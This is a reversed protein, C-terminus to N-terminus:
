EYTIRSKWPGTEHGASAVQENVFSCVVALVCALVGCLHAQSTYLFQRWGLQGPSHALTHRQCPSHNGVKSIVSLLHTLTPTTPMNTQKHTRKHAHSHPHPHKMQHTNFRLHRVREVAVNQETCCWPDVVESYVKSEAGICNIHPSPQTCIVQRIAPHFNNETQM